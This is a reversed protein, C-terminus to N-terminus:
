KGDQRELKFKLQDPTIAGLLDDLSSRSEVANIVSNDLSLDVAIGGQQSVQADEGCGTLLMTGAILSIFIKKMM